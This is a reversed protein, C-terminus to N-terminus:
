YHGALLNAHKTGFFYPTKNTGADKEWIHASENMDKGTHVYMDVIISHFLRSQEYKDLVKGSTKNANIQWSKSIIIQGGKKFFEKRVCALIEIM